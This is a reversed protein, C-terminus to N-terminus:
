LVLHVLRFLLGYLRGRTLPLCTGLPYDHGKIDPVVTRPRGFSYSLGIYVIILFVYASSVTCTHKLTYSHCEIQLDYTSSKFYFIVHM